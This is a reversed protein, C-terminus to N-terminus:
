VCGEWVRERKKKVAGRRREGGEEGKPSVWENRGGKVVDSGPAIEGGTPRACPDEYYLRRGNYHILRSEAETMGRMNLEGSEDDCCWSWSGDKWGEVSAGAWRTFSLNNDVAKVLRGATEEHWRQYQAKWGVGGGAAM